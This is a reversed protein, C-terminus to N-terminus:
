RPPGCPLHSPTVRMYVCVGGGGEDVGVAFIKPLGHLWQEIEGDVIVGSFRLRGASPTASIHRPSYRNVNEIVYRLPEDDFILRGHIWATAANADAHAVSAVVGNDRYSLREGRALRIPSPLLISAAGGILTPSLSVLPSASVAVTGETVTVVVRDSDRRVLFATGVDRIVGDGAHVVFPWKTDHAVRFWAEGRMLDVTRVSASFTVVLKTRGGLTIESGDTLRADQLGGVDTRYTVPRGDDAAGIWTCPLPILAAIAVLAVAVVGAVLSLRRKAVPLLRGSAALSVRRSRWAEIPVSLDYQDAAIDPDHGHHPRARVDAVLEILHEFVCRNEPTAYWIRWERIVSITLHTGDTGTLTEHWGLAEVWRETDPALEEDGTSV